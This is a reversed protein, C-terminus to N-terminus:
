GAGPRRAVFVALWFDRWLCDVDEFGSATLHHLIQKVPECHNGERRQREEDGRVMERVQEPEERERGLLVLARERGILHQTLASAGALHDAFVFAGGPKLVRLVQRFIRGKDEAHHIAMASTVADMSAPEFQDPWASSFDLQVFRVIAHGPDLAEKAISLMSPSGDTVWIVAFHQSELLKQTFRGTGAGLELLTSAPPTVTTLLDLAVALM